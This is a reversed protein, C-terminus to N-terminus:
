GPRPLLSRGRSAQGTMVTRLSRGRSSVLVRQEGLVSIFGWFPDLDNKDQPNFFCFFDGCVFGLGCWPGPITWVRTGVSENIM